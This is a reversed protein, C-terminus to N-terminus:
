WMVCSYKNIFQRFLRDVCAFYKGLCVRELFLQCVHFHNPMKAIEVYETCLYCVFMPGNKCFFFKNIETFIISYITDDIQTGLTAAITWRIDLIPFYFRNFHEAQRHESHELGSSIIHSVIDDFLSFAFKLATSLFTNMRHIFKTSTDQPWRRVISLKRSKDSPEIRNITKPNRDPLPKSWSWMSVCVFACRSSFMRSIRCNRLSSFTANSLSIPSLHFSYVYKFFTRWENTNKEERKKRNEM